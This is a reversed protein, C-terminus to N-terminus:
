GPRWRTRLLLCFFPSENPCAVKSRPQFLLLLLKNGQFVFVINHVNVVTNIFAANRGNDINFIAIQAIHRRSSHM